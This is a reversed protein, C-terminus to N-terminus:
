APVRSGTTCTEVFAEAAPSLPRDRETLLVFPRVFVLGRVYLREVREGRRFLRSPVVGVGAGAAVAGVVTANSGLEMAVQPTIGAAALSTEVAHRTASGPERLVFPRGALEEAEVTGGAMPDGAAVIPVLGEEEVVREELRSLGATRGIVAVEIERELLAAITEDTDAVRLSLEVEPYREHFSAALRPLFLEGPTTSAGVLLRGRPAAHLSMTEELGSLEALVRRGHEALTAGAPTPRAHRGRTLLCVGFHAELSHLHNSVAPQSVGMERGAASLSGNDLIAVFVRLAQISVHASM